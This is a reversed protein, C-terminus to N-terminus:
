DRGVEAAVLGLGLWTLSDLSLGPTLGQATWMSATVLVMGAGALAVLSRGRLAASFGSWAGLALLVAFLAFGILGLDALSQIWANQVGFTFGPRPFAEDPVDPFREHADPLYGSLLSYEGSGQWGAGVVPHDQWIRVGLYALLTRHSYTEVGHQEQREDLVGAFRLFDNLDNGRFAVILLGVVAVGAAAAALARTADRLIRAAAVAAGLALVIGLLGAISGSVVLGIAGSVCAALAFGTRLRFVVCALGIAYSCGALTAFDHHGLFSPQRRGAAWADLVDWGLFQALGVLAALCAWGVLVALLLERESRKRALVPVAAALVAYEAFKGATVAHTAFAYERGSLLPLVTDIGIWALLGAALLWLHRARGLPPLGHRALSSVVAGVLALLLLDSLYVTVDAGGVTFGPLHSTHILVLPTAIALLAAGPSPTAM